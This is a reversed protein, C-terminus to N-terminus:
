TELVHIWPQFFSEIQLIKKRRAHPGSIWLYFYHLHWKISFGPIYYIWFYLLIYAGLTLAVLKTFCVSNFIIPSVSCIIIFTPLKIIIRYVAHLIWVLFVLFIVHFHVVTIGGTLPRFCSFELKQIYVPTCFLFLFYLVSVVLLNWWPDSPTLM